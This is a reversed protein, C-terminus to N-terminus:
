AEVFLRGVNWNSKQQSITLYLFRFYLVFPFCFPPKFSTFLFSSFAFLFFFFHFDTTFSSFASLFPFFSFRNCLNSGRLVMLRIALEFSSLPFFKVIVVWVWKFCSQHSKTVRHCTPRYVRTTENSWFLAVLLNFAHKIRFRRFNSLSKPVLDVAQIKSDWNRTADLKYYSSRKYLFFFM